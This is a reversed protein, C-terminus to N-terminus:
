DPASADLEREVAEPAVDRELEELEVGDLPVGQKEAMARVLRILNTVEHEALHNIQLDLDARRDALKADRNQSVLVFTTLFIGEVSTLTALGVFNADFRPAGPVLGFNVLTWVAVLVMHAYAFAMTGVVSSITNALKGHVNLARWEEERRERLGTINRALVRNLGKLHPPPVTPSGSM